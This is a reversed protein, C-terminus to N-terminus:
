LFFKQTPFFSASTSHIRRCQDFPFCQFLVSMEAKFCAHRITFHLIEIIPHLKITNLLLVFTLMQVANKYKVFLSRKNIKRCTVVSDDFYYRTAQTFVYGLWKEADPEHSWSLPTLENCCFWAVQKPNDYWYNSLEVRRLSIGIFPCDQVRTDDSDIGYFITRKCLILLVDFTM